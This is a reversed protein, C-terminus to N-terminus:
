DDDEWEGETTASLDLEWWCPPVYRMVANDEDELDDWVADIESETGTYRTIGVIVNRHQAQYTTGAVTGDTSAVVHRRERSKIKEQRVTVM